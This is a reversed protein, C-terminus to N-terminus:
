PAFAIPTSASRQSRWYMSTSSAHEIRVPDAARAVLRQRLEAGDAAAIVEDLHLDVAVVARHPDHDVAAAAAVAPLRRVVVEVGARLQAAQRLVAALFRPQAGVLREPALVPGMVVRGRVVGDRVPVDDHAAHLLRELVDEGRRAFHEVLDRVVEHLLLREHQGVAARLAAEHVALARRARQRRAMGIEDADCHSVVPCGHRTGPEIISPAAIRNGSAPAYPEPQETFWPAPRTM